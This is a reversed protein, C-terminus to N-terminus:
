RLSPRPRGSRPGGGDGGGAVCLVDAKDSSYAAWNAHNMAQHVFASIDVRQISRGPEAPVYVADPLTIVKERGDGPIHNYIGAALAKMLEVRGSYQDGLIVTIGAPIGFGKCSGGSPVSLDVEVDESATLAVRDASPEDTGSRRTISAVDGVFGVLGQTPLLQRIEDADEMTSVFDAIDSENLNCYILSASVVHPLDEFFLEKASESSILGGRAPLDVSIRAEIYEDTVVSSSRPLIKQGPKAM